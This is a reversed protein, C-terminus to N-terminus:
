NLGEVAEKALRSWRILRDKDGRVTEIDSLNIDATVGRDKCKMAISRIDKKIQSDDYLFLHSAPHVHTEYVFHAGLEELIRDIDTWPSVHFRKLNPLSSIIGAKCTLDECGHYYVKGFIAAIRKHYPQIFEAYMAPSIVGASQASLYAWCNKLTFPDAPNEIRDFHIRFDWTSEPDIGDNKELKLYDDIICKTFFEMMAHIFGPDDYLDFLVNEIGRFQVVNEFPGTGLQPVLVKVPIKDGSMERVRLVKEATKKENVAGNPKQLKKIDDAAALVPLYRKAGMSYEPVEIRLPLGFAPGTNEAVADIWLTPLIVDDDDIDRFKFQKQRLQREVLRELPDKATITEDSIIEHWVGHDAIKWLHLNTLISGCGPNNNHAIWKAKRITNEKSESLELVECALETIQHNM